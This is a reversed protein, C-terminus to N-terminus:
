RDRDPSSSLHKDLSVIKGAAGSIQDSLSIKRSMDHELNRKLALFDAPSIDADGMCGTKDIYRINLREVFLTERGKKMDLACNSLQALFSNIDIWGTKTTFVENIARFPKEGEPVSLRKDAFYNNARIESPLPIAVSGHRGFLDSTLMYEVGLQQIMKQSSLQMEESDRWLPSKVHYIDTLLVSKGYIKHLLDLEHCVDISSGIASRKEPSISMYKGMAEEITDYRFINSMTPLHDVVYYTWETAPKTRYDYQAM